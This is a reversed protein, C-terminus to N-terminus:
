IQTRTRATSNELTPSQFRVTLSFNLDVQQPLLQRALLQQQVQVQWVQLELVMHFLVLVLLAMLVQLRVQQHLEVETGVMHYEQLHSVQQQQM